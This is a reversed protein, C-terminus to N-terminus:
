KGDVQGESSLFVCFRKLICSSAFFWWVATKKAKTGRSQFVNIVKKLGSANQRSM